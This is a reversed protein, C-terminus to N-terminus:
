GVHRSAPGGPAAGPRSDRTGRAWVGSPRDDSRRSMRGDFWEVTRALGEALELPPDLGLALSAPSAPLTDAPPVPTSWPLSPPAEDSAGDIVDVDVIGAAAAIMQAIELVTAEASPAVVVSTRPDGSTALARVLTEVADDVYALRVRQGLRLGPVLSEGRLAQLVLSTVLHEGDPAMRPGYASPLRVIRIDAGRTKAFDTALSEACRVGAGWRETAVTLVVPAGNAAAVELVHMTGAVCTLAARVPDLECAAKTSPMALHFIRDVKARFPTAVDHEMFAFRTDRKLHALNAFSGRSLDDIAIVEDGEALLRDVLHSGVLGAGGLVLARQM